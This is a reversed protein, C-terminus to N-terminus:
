DKAYDVKAQKDLCILSMTAPISNPRSVELKSIHKYIIANIYKNYIILVIKYKITM